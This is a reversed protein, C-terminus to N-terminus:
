SALRSLDAVQNMQAHLKNLLSLRNQRIAQDEANVMVENFFADVSDRLGALVTLNAKYDGANFCTDAKEAINILQTYLDQEAKEILLSQNVEANIFDSSKKLINSIRKNAAALAESAPLLSFQAVAELRERVHSWTNLKVSEMVASVHSPIVDESELLNAVRELFFQELKNKDFEAITQKEFSSACIDILQQISIPIKKDILMRIVGLAHRRLAFPDKDGTPLNGIGFMGVLTEMKDAMAVVLGVMSMPLQDGAFRPKYHDEIAQAVDPAVGDNRAYYAGMIGQLEPFEGVMDTLLDAKSLRAATSAKLALQADGVISALQHAVTTVRQMRQLQNGLKHHYVVKELGNIRSELTKKCDQEYFFKADALRPRVVRENGTKVASMDKASINSVVMFHNTLTGNSNLVPFYKQNTKMTLILCEQPVKLFQEEFHCSIVNPREVLATVEDLLSPDIECHFDHGLSETVSKLQLAINARRKEFSAVVAGNKLLDEEYSDATHIHVPTTLAEFRHGLTTATANLGLATIHIIQDGHMAVLGHAPRVFSVTSWGPMECHEHLQYQMLKPIPLKALAQEVAKQLGHQLSVGKATYEYQLIGDSTRKLGAVLKSSDSTDVGLAQLKKILAPTANANADLGVSAPMLKQQLVKDNANARVDKIWVAMRRPTAYTQVCEEIKLQGDVLDQETLSLWLKAAFNHSLLDLSKPPLEEVLLEVLLNQTNM